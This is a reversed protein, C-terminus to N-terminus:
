KFIIKEYNPDDPKNECFRKDLTPHVEYNNKPDGKVQDLSNHCPDNWYFTITAKLWIEEQLLTSQPVTGAFNVVPKSNKFDHELIAKYKYEGVKVEVQYLVSSGDINETTEGFSVPSSKMENAGEKAIKVEKTDLDELVSEQNSGYDKKFKDWNEDNFM